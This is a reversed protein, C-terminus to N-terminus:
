EEDSSENLTDGLIYKTAKEAQSAAMVVLRNDNKLAKLWSAIYAASNDITVNDIGAISCLFSAGMEAVLEEKAYSKSGFGHSDIDTELRKLRSQHGTSHILEHFLTAYYEESSTFSNFKPMNVYDFFPKYYARQEFHRIEPGGMYGNVIKECREMPSNNYEKTIHRSKLGECQSNIEFVNYYRLVPIKQASGDDGEKEYWKWFVVMESQAGKKVKGGAETIQKFTAFEGGRGLLMTNIGNYEKGTKWNVAERSGSWTKRWPVTGAELQKIIRDTVIQFVNM